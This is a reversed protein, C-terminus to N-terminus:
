QWNVAVCLSGLTKQNRALLSNRQAVMSFKMPYYSATIPKITDGVTFQLPDIEVQAYFQKRIIEM